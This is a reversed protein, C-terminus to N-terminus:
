KYDDNYYVLETISKTKLYNTNRKIIAALGNSKKLHSNIIDLASNALLNIHINLAPFTPHWCGIGEIIQEEKQPIYFYKKPDLNTKNNKIHVMLNNYIELCNQELGSIILTLIEAYFDFFM